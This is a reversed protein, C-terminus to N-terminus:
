RPRALMRLQLRRGDRRDFAVADAGAGRPEDGAVMREVGLQLLPQRPKLARFRSAHEAGAIEGIGANRRRQGPRSSRIRISSSAWELRHAPARSDRASTCREAVVVDAM